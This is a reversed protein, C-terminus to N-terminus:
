IRVKEPYGETFDYAEIEEQTTLAEIAARHGATVAVCQMAYVSIAKIAAIADATPVVVGEFPVREIGAEAAAQLTLLYNTREDPTLWMAKDGLYFANVEESSDYAELSSLKNARALEVPDPVPPIYEVWGDAILQEATPNSIAGGNDLRITGKGAEAFCRVGRIIKIYKM